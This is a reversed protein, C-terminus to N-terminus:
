GVFGFRRRRRMRCWEGCMVSGSGEKAFREADKKDDSRFWERCQCCCFVTRDAMKKEFEDSDIEVGPYENALYELCEGSSPNEDSLHEAIEDLEAAKLYRKTKKSPM